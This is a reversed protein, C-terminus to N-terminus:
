LGRHSGHSAIRAPVYQTTLLESCIKECVALAEMPLGSASASVRRRTHNSLRVHPM